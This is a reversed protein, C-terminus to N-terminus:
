GEKTCTANISNLNTTYYYSVFDPGVPYNFYHRRDPCSYKVTTDMENNRSPNSRSWEIITRGGASKELPLPPETCLISRDECDPIYLNECWLESDDVTTNPFAKKNVCTEDKIGGDAAWM